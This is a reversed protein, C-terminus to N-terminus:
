CDQSIWKRLIKQRDFTLLYEICWTGGRGSAHQWAGRHEYQWLLNGNELVTTRHPPGLRRTVEDQTAKNTVEELYTVRWPTTRSCSITFLACTFALVAALMVTAYRM